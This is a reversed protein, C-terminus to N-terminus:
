SFRRTRLAKHMTQALPMWSEPPFTERFRLCCHVRENQRMAGDGRGLCRGGGVYPDTTTKSKTDIDTNTNTNPSTNPNPNPIITLKLQLVCTSGFDDRMANTPSGSM